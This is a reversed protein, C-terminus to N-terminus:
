IIINYSTHLLIKQFLLFYNGLIQCLAFKIIRYEVDNSNIYIQACVCAHTFIHENPYTYVHIFSNVCVYTYLYMCIYMCADVVSCCFCSPFGRHLYDLEIATCYFHCHFNSGRLIIEFFLSFLFFRLEASNKIHSMNM